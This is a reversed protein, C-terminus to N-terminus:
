YAFPKRSNTKKNATIEFLSIGEDLKPFFYPM